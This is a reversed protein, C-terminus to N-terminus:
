TGRAGLIIGRNGAGDRARRRAMRDQRRAIVGEYFSPKVVKSPPRVYRCGHAALYELAEVAHCSSKKRDAEDLIRVEGGVNMTKKRFRLMERVLNPCRHGVVMLKTTSDDRTGLWDRMANERYEPVDVGDTFGHGSSVSKVGLARLEKEYQARPKKGTDFSTLRAGHKDIVFEQWDYGKWKKQFEAAFKKADCQRIYCEDFAVVYDGLAPPPVAVMVVAFVDHGPDFGAYRCWDAPPEGGREALIKEIETLPETNIAEHRYKDFTPYVRRSGQNLEGSVRQKAVDEGFHQTLTKIDEQKARDSTYPNDLMSATFCVATPNEEGEQDEAEDLLQLMADNEAQPMAHWRVKGGVATTRMMAEVFWGQNDIDEDIDYLNVNIGQLMNPDGKSNCALLEWEGEPHKIVVRSFIYESRKEYSWDFCFKDPILPPAPEAGEDERDCPTWDLGLRKIYFAGPRFLFRHIVTGIHREGWGLCVCTGSMPYKKYPDRGLLARAVEVYGALSGGTRNGKRIIARRATCAHYREQYPLPKYVRLAEKLRASHEHVAQMYEDREQQSATARLHEQELADALSFERSKPKTAKKPM